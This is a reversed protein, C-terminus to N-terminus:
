PLLRGKGYPVSAAARELASKPLRLPGLKAELRKVAEAVLKRAEEEGPGILVYADARAAVAGVPGVLLDPGEDTKAVGIALKLEVGRIYEKRGLIYFAGKPLKEGHPGIKKAQEPRFCMATAAGLGYKWARSYSVAMQAAELLTSRPVERGGAKILVFPAGPIEAHLLLDGPSAYRKVILENTAADKGAVVLLGDSSEFWRFQEYWAKKRAKEPVEVLEEAELEAPVELPAEELEKLKAKLAELERRTEEIARAAGEAKRRAKKAREYYRSATEQASSRLNLELELGDLRLRACPGSPSLDSLWSFPPGRGRLEDLRARVAEWSGEEERLERLAEILMNLEHLHAFITDGILSCREKEEELRRLADEQVRLREELRALQERLGRLTRKRAEEADLRSFYADVAENMTRFPLVERGEYRLLRVPVVDIWNEGDLVVAPELPGELIARLLDSLARGIRVLEEDTLSSCPKKKEVGARLLAEEAYTGSLGTLRSLGRVVELDGLERLAALDLSGAATLDLRPQPPYRYPEGVRLTRDRMERPRLVRKIRGDPGVLVLNGDGFLEFILRFPGGPASISLELLRDLKHQRVDLIRGGRIDKRLGMCFPTPREPVEVDRETLALYAGLDVLLKYTRGPGRLKLLFKNKGLQYINSLRLGKIAESLERVLAALDLGSLTSKL